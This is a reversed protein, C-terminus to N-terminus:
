EVSWNTFYVITSMGMNDTRPNLDYWEPYLNDEGSEMASNEEDVLIATLAMVLKLPEDTVFGVCSKGYMSRGSYNIRTEIENLGSEDNLRSMLNDFTETSITPM